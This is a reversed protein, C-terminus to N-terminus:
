TSMQGLLYISIVIHASVIWAFDGKFQPSKPTTNGIEYQWAKLVDVGRWLPLKRGV